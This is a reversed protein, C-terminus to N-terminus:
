CTGQPRPSLTGLRNGHSIDSHVPIAPSVPHLLDGVHVLLLEVPRFPEEPVQLDASLGKGMARTLLFTGAEFESCEVM